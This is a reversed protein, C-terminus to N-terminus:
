IFVAFLYSVMGYPVKDMRMYNSIRSDVLLFRYVCWHNFVPTAIRGGTDESINVYKKDSATQAQRLAAAADVLPSWMAIFWKEDPWYFDRGALQRLPPSVMHLLSDHVVIM